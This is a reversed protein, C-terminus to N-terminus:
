AGDPTVTLKDRLFIWLLNAHFHLERSGNGKQAKSGGRRKSGVSNLAGASLQEISIGVLINESRLRQLEPTVFTVIRKLSDTKSITQILSIGFATLFLVGGQLTFTRSLNGSFLTEGLNSVHIVHGVIGRGSGDVLEHELLTYLILKILKVLFENTQDRNLLTNLFNGSQQNKILHSALKTEFSGNRGKVHAESSGGSGTLSGNSYSHSLNKCLHSVGTLSM